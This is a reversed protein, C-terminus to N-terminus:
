KNGIFKICGEHFMEYRFKIIIMRYYVFCITDLTCYVRLGDKYLDTKYGDIDLRMKYKEGVWEKLNFM